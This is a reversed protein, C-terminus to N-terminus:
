EPLKATQGGFIAGAETFQNDATAFFVLGVMNGRVYSVSVVQLAKGEFKAEFAHSIDREDLLPDLVAALNVTDKDFFSEAFNKAYLGELVDEVDAPSLERGDKYSLLSTFLISGDRADWRRASSLLNKDEISPVEYTKAVNVTIGNSKLAAALEADTLLRANLTKETEKKALATGTSMAVSFPLLLLALAIFLSKKFLQSEKHRVLPTISPNSIRQM